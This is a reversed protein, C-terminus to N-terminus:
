RLGEIHHWLQGEFDALVNWFMIRGKLLVHPAIGTDEIKNSIQFLISVTLQDFEITSVNIVCANVLYRELVWM